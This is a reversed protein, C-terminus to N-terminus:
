RRCLRWTTGHTIGYSFSSSHGTYRRAEQALARRQETKHERWYDMNLYRSAKLYSDSRLAVRRVAISIGRDHHDVMEM